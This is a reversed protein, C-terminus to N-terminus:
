WLVGPSPAQSVTRSPSQCTVETQDGKTVRPQYDQPSMENRISVFDAQASILPRTKWDQHSKKNLNTEVQIISM